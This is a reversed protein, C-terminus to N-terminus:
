VTPTAQERHIVVVFPRSLQTAHIIRLPVFAHLALHVTLQHFTDMM